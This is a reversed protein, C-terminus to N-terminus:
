VSPKNNGKKPAEPEELEKKSFESLASKDYEVSDVEEIKEPEPKAEIVPEEIVPETGQTLKAGAFYEAVIKDKLEAFEAPVLIEEPEYKAVKLLSQINVTMFEGAKDNKPPTVSVTKWGQERCMLSNIEAVEQNDLGQNYVKIESSFKSPVSSSQFLPKNDEGIKFLYKKPFLVSDNNVTYGYRDLLDNLSYDSWDVEPKDAEPQDITDEITPKTDELDGNSLVGTIDEAMAECHVNEVAEIDLELDMPTRDVTHEFVMTTYNDADYNKYVSLKERVEEVLKEDKCFESLDDGLDSKLESLAMEYNDISSLELRNFCIETKGRIDNM